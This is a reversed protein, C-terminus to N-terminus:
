LVFVLIKKESYLALHKQITIYAKKKKKGIAHSERIPPSM